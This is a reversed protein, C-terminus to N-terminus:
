FVTRGPSTVLMDRSQDFCIYDHHSGLRIPEEATNRCSGHGDLRVRVADSGTFAFDDASVVFSGAIDRRSASSSLQSLGVSLM